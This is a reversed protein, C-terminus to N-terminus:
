LSPRRQAQRARAGRPAGQNQAPRRVREQNGPEAGSTLSRQADFNLDSQLKEHVVSGCGSEEEPSHLNLRFSTEVLDTYAEQFARLLDARSIAFDALNNLQVESERLRCKRPPVPGRSATQATEETKSPPSTTNSHAFKVESKTRLSKAPGHEERPAGFPTQPTQASLQQLAFERSLAESLRPRGESTVQARLAERNSLLLSPMRSDRLSFRADRFSKSLDASPLDKAFPDLVPFRNEDSVGRNLTEELKRLWKHEMFQRARLLRRFGERLCGLVQFVRYCSPTVNTPSPTTPDMIVLNAYVPLSELPVFPQRGVFENLTLRVGMFQPNFNNTLFGLFELALFGVDACAEFSFHHLFAVLLLSLGYANLGGTFTNALHNSSLVFKFFVALDFFSPYYSVCNCVYDTSRFASNTEGNEDFSGVIIDVRILRSEAAKEPVDKFEESADAVLKIVPVSASLIKKSEKVFAFLRLNNELTLLYQKTEEASISKFGECWLALDLDSFPTLLGTAFSGYPRVNVETTKFSKHVICNIRELVIRRHENLTEAQSQLDAVVKKVGGGVFTAFAERTLKSVREKERDVALRLANSDGEGEGGVLGSSARLQASGLSDGGLERRSFFQQSKALLQKGPGASQLGFDSGPKALASGSLSSDKAKEGPGEKAEGGPTGAGGKGSFPGFTLAPSPASCHLAGGKTERIAPRGSHPKLEFARSSLKLRRRPKGLNLPKEEKQSWKGPRAKAKKEVPAKRARSKKAKAQAESGSEEWKQVKARPRKESTKESRKERKAPAKKPAEKKPVRPKAEKKPPERREARRRRDKKSKKLKYKVKGGKKKGKASGRQLLSRSKRSEGEAVSKRREEPAEVKAKAKRPEERRKPPPREVKKLPVEIEFRAEAERESEVEEIKLGGIQAELEVPARGKGSLVKSGESRVELEGRGSHSRCGFSFGGKSQRGGAGESKGDSRREKACFFSDGELSATKCDDWFAEYGTTRVSRYLHESGEKATQREGRAQSRCLRQSERQRAKEELLTHIKQSLLKARAGWKRRRESDQAELEVQAGEGGGGPGAERRKEGKAEGKGKGRKGSDKLLPVLVGESDGQAAIQRKLADIFEGRNDRSLTPRQELKVTAEAQKPSRRRQKKKRRKHRRSRKRQRRSRGQRKKQEEATLDDINKQIYLDHLVGVMRNMFFKEVKMSDVLNPSLCLSVFSSAGSRSAAVIRAKVRRKLEERSLGGLLDADAGLTWILKLVVEDWNMSRVVADGKAKLKRARAGARPEKFNPLLERPGFAEERFHDLQDVVKAILEERREEDLSIWVGLYDERLQIPMKQEFLSEGERFCLFIRREFHAVVWSAFSNLSTQKFWHPLKFASGTAYFRDDLIDFIHHNSVADFAQLVDDVGDLYERSFTVSDFISNRRFVRLKRMLLKEFGNRRREFENKSYFNGPSTRKISYLLTSYKALAFDKQTEFIERIDPERVSFSNHKVRRMQSMMKMLLSVLGPDTISFVRYITDKKAKM